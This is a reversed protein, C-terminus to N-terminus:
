PLHTGAGLNDIEAGNTELAKAITPEDFGAKKMQILDELTLHKRVQGLGAPLLTLHTLVIAVCL